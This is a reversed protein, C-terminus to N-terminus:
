QVCTESNWVGLTNEQAYRESEKFVHVYRYAKDYTYERAYGNKILLENVSPTTTSTYMYVLVRGYKDYLGQTEDTEIYATNSLLLQETYRKAELSYCEVPKRPDVSEPTDVGILRAKTSTGNFNIVVTDGDVVRIVKVETFSDVGNKPYSLINGVYLGFVILVAALIRKVEKRLIM